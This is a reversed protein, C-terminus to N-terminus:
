PHKLTAIKLFFTATPLNRRQMQAACHGTDNIFYKFFNREEKKQLLCDVNNSSVKVLWKQKTIEKHFHCNTSIKKPNNPNLFEYNSFLKNIIKDDNM